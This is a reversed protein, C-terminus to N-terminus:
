DDDDIIFVDEPNTNFKITRLFQDLTMSPTEERFKALCVKLPEGGDLIKREKCPLRQYCIPLQASIAPMIRYIPTWIAFAHPGKICQDRNYAALVRDCIVFNDGNQGAYKCDRNLTSCCPLTIPKEDQVTRYIVESSNPCEGTGSGAM